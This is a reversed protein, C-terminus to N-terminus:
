TFQVIVVFFEGKKMRSQFRFYFTKNCKVHSRSKGYFHTRKNFTSTIFFDRETFDPKESETTTEEGRLFTVYVQFNM